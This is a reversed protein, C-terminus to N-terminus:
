IKWLQLSNKDKGKYCSINTNKWTNPVWIYDTVNSQARLVKWVTFSQPFLRYMVRQLIYSRTVRWYLWKKNVRGKNFKNILWKVSYIEKRFIQRVNEVFSRSQLTNFFFFFFLSFVCCLKLVQMMEPHM